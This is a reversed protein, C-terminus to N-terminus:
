DVWRVPQFVIHGNSVAIIRASRGTTLDDGIFVTVVAGIQNTAFEAQQMDTLPITFEDGHSTIM